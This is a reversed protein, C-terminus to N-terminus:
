NVYRIHYNKIKVFQEESIQKCRKSVLSNSCGIIKAAETATKCIKNLELIYVQKKPNRYKKLKKFLIM